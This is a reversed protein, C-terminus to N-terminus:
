LLREVPQALAALQGILVDAGAQAFHAQGQELRIDVILNDLIEGTGHLPTGM